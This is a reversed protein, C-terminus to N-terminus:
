KSLSSEGKGISTKYWNSNSNTQHNRLLFQFHLINVSLCVSLFVYLCVPVPCITILLSRFVHLFDWSKLFSYKMMCWICRSDKTPRAIRDGHKAKKVSHQLWKQRINVAKWDWSSFVICVLKFCTMCCQTGNRQLTFIFCFIQLFLDWIEKVRHEFNGWNIITHHNTTALVNGRPVNCQTIKGAAM